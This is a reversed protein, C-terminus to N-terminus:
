IGDGALGVPAPAALCPAHFLRGSLAGRLTRAAVVTWFLALCVVLGAGIGSFPVFGTLRGLALTALSYVGLPFTFGWWGLNFPMGRRLYHATKLVALALWWLGYGWLILGGVIGIGFAADGLGAPGASGGLRQAEQGLLLLALAGTGIPGLALWGSAAMDRGPLKHLVLRLLLIVLIGLAAPVSLAWLVYSLLLVPYGHAAPLHAVLLGGSAAAVECAVVPLLWVATMRELAHDQRTVMCYPVLIGCAVALVADVEWLVHALPVAAAGILEPGFVLCGNLITALAMPIAGLFMSMVPHRFIRRAEDFCCLWRAGYLLCFLGFLGINLLWLARALGHLGPVPLPFQNLALALIGTGMSATFWNPTFHRIARPLVSPALVAPLRAAPVSDTSTM